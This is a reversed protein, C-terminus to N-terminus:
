ATEPYFIDEIHVNIRGAQMGIMESVARSVADQVDRAVQRLNVGNDLILYLDIDVNTEDLELRVGEATHADKSWGPAKGMAHVGAVSLTTLRAIALLVDPAVTTQGPSRLELTM